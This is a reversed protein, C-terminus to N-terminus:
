TNMLRRSHSSTELIITAKDSEDRYNIKDYLDRPKLALARAPGSGMAFFNGVNVRWGAFQAGFLAVTPYDTTVSITPLYQDYSMIWVKGDTKLLSDSLQNKLSDYQKFGPAFSGDKAMESDFAVKTKKMYNFYVSKFKNTMKLYDYIYKRLHVLSEDQFRGDLDMRGIHGLPVHIDFEKLRKIVTELIKKLPIYIEKKTTKFEIDMLIFISNNTIFILKPIWFTM